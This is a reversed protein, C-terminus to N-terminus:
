RFLYRELQYIAGLKGTGENSDLLEKYADINAQLVKVIESMTKEDSAVIYVIDFIPWVCWNPCSSQDGIILHVVLINSYGDLLRYHSLDQVRYYSKINTGMAPLNTNKVFYFGLNEIRLQIM